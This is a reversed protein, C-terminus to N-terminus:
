LNAGKGDERHLQPVNSGEAGESAGEFQRSEAWMVAPPPVLRLAARM